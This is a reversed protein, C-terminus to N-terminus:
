VSLPSLPGVRHSSGKCARRFCIAHRRPRGMLRFGSAQAWENLADVLVQSEIDLQVEKEAQAHASTGLLALGIGMLAPRLTGM